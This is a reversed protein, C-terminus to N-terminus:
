PPRGHDITRQRSEDLAVGPQGAQQALVGVAHCAGTHHAFGREGHPSRLRHPEEVVFVVHPAATGEGAGDQAGQEAVVGDVREVTVGVAGALLEEQRQQLGVPDGTEDLM